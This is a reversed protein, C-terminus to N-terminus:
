EMSSHHQKLAAQVKGYDAGPHKKQALDVMVDGLSRYIEEAQTGALAELHKGVTEADGREVPGTLAAVCGSELMTDVNGRVLPELLSMAEQGEFGCGELLSLSTQVLGLVMNSAMAAAAHYRLKDRVIHKQDAFLLVRHGLGEWFAKMPKVASADGEMTLCATHFNRYSSYKDSFAYMPHISIGFAGTEEMGTFVRSSLSGSFHCVTRGKMDCSAIEQWVSGIERDPTTIFITDSAAALEVVTGFSVTETFTAAEDASKKTRSYFGTVETGADSLYKGLTVGVRGAGIIGIRM